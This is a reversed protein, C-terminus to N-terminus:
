SKAERERNWAERRQNQQSKSEGTLNENEAEDSCTKKRHPEPSMRFHNERETQQERAGIDQMQGQGQKSAM